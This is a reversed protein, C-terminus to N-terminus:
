LLYNLNMNNSIKNNSDMMKMKKYLTPCTAKIDNINFEIDIYIKNGEGYEDEIFPISLTNLALRIWSANTENDTNLSIVGSGDSYYSLPFENLVKEPTLEIFEKM